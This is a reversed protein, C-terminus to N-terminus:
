DIEICKREELYLDIKGPYEEIINQEAESEDNAITYGHKEIREPWKGGGYYTVHYYYIKM